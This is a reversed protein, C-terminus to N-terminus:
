RYVEKWHKALWSNPQEAVLREVRALTERQLKPPQGKWLQERALKITTSATAGNEDIWIFDKM